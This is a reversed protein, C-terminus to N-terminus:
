GMMRTLELMSDEEADYEDYEDDSWNRIEGGDQVMVEMMDPDDEEIVWEVPLYFTTNIKTSAVFEASRRPYNSGLFMAKVIPSEMNKKTVYIREPISGLEAYVHQANVYTIHEVKKKTIEPHYKHTNLIREDYPTTCEEFVMNLDPQANELNELRTLMMHCRVCTISWITTPFIIQTNDLFASEEIILKNLGLPLQIRPMSIPTLNHVLKFSRINPGHNFLTTLDTIYTGEIVVDIVSPPIDTIHGIFCPHGLTRRMRYGFRISTTKQIRLYLLNPFLSAISPITFPLSLSSHGEAHIQLWSINIFESFDLVERPVYTWEAAYGDVNTEIHTIPM